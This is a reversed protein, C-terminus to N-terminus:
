ITLNSFSFLHFHARLPSPVCRPVRGRGRGIIVTITILVFFQIKKMKIWRFIPMIYATESENKSLNKYGGFIRWQFEFSVGRSGVEMNKSKITCPTTWEVVSKAEKNCDRKSARVLLIKSVKRKINLESKKKKM